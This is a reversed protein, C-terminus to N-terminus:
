LMYGEPELLTWGDISDDDSAMDDYGPWIGSVLCKCYLALAAEYYYRGLGIFGSPEADVMMKRGTEWPFSNESVIHLFEVRVDDPCASNFMDLYLAGQWHYKLQYVTKVWSKTHASRSTKLDVLRHARPVMDILAKCPIILGTAPDHYEGVVMVQKQSESIIEAIKKDAKLRNIATKAEELLKPSIQEKDVNEKVWEKCRNANGNWKKEEGKENVYTEPKVAYKTEFDEPTLLLMDVLSGWQNGEFRYGARWKAPCTAFTTLMSSSVAFDMDGRKAGQRHYQASDINNGIVKANKFEM